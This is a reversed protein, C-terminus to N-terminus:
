LPLPHTLYHCVIKTTTNVWILDGERYEKVITEAFEENVAIYDLWYRSEAVSSLPTINFPFVFCEVLIENTIQTGM